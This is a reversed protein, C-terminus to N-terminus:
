LLALQHRQSSSFHARLLASWTRLEDAVSIGALHSNALSMAPFLSWHPPFSLLFSGCLPSCVSGWIRRSGPFVFSRLCIVLPCTEGSEPCTWPPRIWMCYYENQELHSNDHMKGTCLTTWSGGCDLYLTPRNDCFTAEYERTVLERLRGEGWLPDTKRDRHNQRKRFTLCISDGIVKWTNSRKNLKVHSRHSQQFAKTKRGTKM